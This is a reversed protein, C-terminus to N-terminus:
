CPFLLRHEFVFLYEGLEPRAFGQEFSMEQEGRAAVAPM